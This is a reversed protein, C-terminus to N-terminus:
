LLRGYCTLSVSLHAEDVAKKEGDRKDRQERVERILRNEIAFIKAIESLSQSQRRVIQVYFRPRVQARRDPNMRNRDALNQRRFREKRRQPRSERFVAQEQRGRGRGPLGDGTRPHGFRVANEIEGEIP